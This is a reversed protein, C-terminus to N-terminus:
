SMSEKIEEKLDDLDNKEILGKEYLFTYFRKISTANGKISSRSAWMAKKIFWYGLFMGVAGVGETAEIADEYLLYENLYFGINSLHNSITNESLGTSKLFVEFENLLQENTKRIKKCENEYREYDDM